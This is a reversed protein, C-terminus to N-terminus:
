RRGKETADCLRKWNGTGVYESCFSTGPKDCTEALLNIIVVDGNEDRTRMLTRKRPPAGKIGAKELTKKPLCIGYCMSSVKVKCCLVPDAETGLIINCYHGSAAGLLKSRANTWLM